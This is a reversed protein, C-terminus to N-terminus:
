AGTNFTGWFKKHFGGNPKFKIQGGDGKEYPYFKVQGGGGLAEWKLGPKNLFFQKM